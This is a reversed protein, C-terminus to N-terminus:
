AALTNLLKANLLKALSDLTAVITDRRIVKGISEQAGCALCVLM